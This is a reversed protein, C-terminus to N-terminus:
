YVDVPEMSCRRVWEPAGKEAKQLQKLTYRVDKCNEDGIFVVLLHNRWTNTQLLDGRKRPMFDPKFFMLDEKTAVDWHGNKKVYYKLEQKNILSNLVSCNIANVISNIILKLM